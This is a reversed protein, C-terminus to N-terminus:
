CTRVGKRKYETVNGEPRDGTSQPMDQDRDGTSQQTNEDM